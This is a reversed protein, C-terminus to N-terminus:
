RRTTATTATCYCLLGATPLAVAQAERQNSKFSDLKCFKTQATQGEVTTQQRGHSGHQWAALETLWNMKKTWRDNRYRHLHWKNVILRGMPADRMTERAKTRWPKPLDPAQGDILLPPLVLVLRVAARRRGRVVALGCCGGGGGGDAVAVFLMLSALVRAPVPLMSPNSPLLLPPTAM